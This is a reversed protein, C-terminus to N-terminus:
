RGARRLLVYIAGAGGDAPRATAFALVHRGFRNTSLWVRLAEKLVPLQDKSHMGRGHVLLVCRKGAQRARRLFDDVAGKAEERTMGHLDLHGQVAFEGRRLKAVVNHDLGAVRGEIFEDSDQVDFPADGSILARLADIAELDPHWFAGTAAPPPPPPATGVGRDVPHVGRTADEWLEFDTHAQPTAAPPPPPPPAAPKARAAEAEREQAKKLTELKGFADNFPRQKRAV